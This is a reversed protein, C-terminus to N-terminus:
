MAPHFWLVTPFLAPTFLLSNAGNRLQRKLNTQDFNLIGTQGVIEAMILLFLSLNMSKGLFILSIAQDEPSYWLTDTKDNTSPSHLELSPWNKGIWLAEKQAALYGGGGYLCSFSNYIVTQMYLCTFLFKIASVSSSFM